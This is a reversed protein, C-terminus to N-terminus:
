RCVLFWFSFAVDKECHQLPVFILNLFCPLCNNQALLQIESRGELLSQKNFGTIQSRWATIEEDPQVLTDYTVNGHRCVLSVRALLNYQGQFGGGVMECDLALERSLLDVGAM